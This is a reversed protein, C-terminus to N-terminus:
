ATANLSYTGMKKITQHTQPSLATASVSFSDMNKSNHTIYVEFVRYRHYFLCGLNREIISSKTKNMLVLRLM